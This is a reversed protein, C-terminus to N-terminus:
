LHQVMTGKKGKYQWQESWDRQMRREAAMDQIKEFLCLSQFAHTQLYAPSDAQFMNSGARLILRVIAM